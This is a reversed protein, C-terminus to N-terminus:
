GESCWSQIMDSEGVYGGTWGSAVKTATEVTNRTTGKHYDDVASSGILYTDVAIAVPILFENAKNVVKFLKAAQTGTEFNLSIM